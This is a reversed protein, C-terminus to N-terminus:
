RTNREIQAIAAVVKRQMSRIMDAELRSQLAYEEDAPDLEDFNKSDKLSRVLGDFLFSELLAFEKATFEVSAARKRIPALTPTM